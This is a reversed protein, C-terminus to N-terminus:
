GAGGVRAGPMQSGDGHGVGSRPKPRRGRFPRPAGRGRRAARSGVLAEVEDPVIRFYAPERVGMARELEVARSLYADAEAPRGLSLELFGLVSLNPILLLIEGAAEAVRLGELAEQRAPDARGLHAEVLGVAFHGESSMPGMHNRQATARSERAHEM